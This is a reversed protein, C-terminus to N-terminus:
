SCLCLRHLHGWGNAGPWDSAGGSNNIVTAGGILMYEWPGLINAAPWYGTLLPIDSLLPNFSQDYIAMVWWLGVENFSIQLNLTTTGGNIPLTVRLSQNPANTIPILVGDLIPTFSPPFQQQGQAPGGSAVQNWQFSNFPGANWNSPSGM